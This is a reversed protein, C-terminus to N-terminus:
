YRTFDLRGQRGRGLVETVLQWKTYVLVPM